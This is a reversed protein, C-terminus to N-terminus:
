ESLKVPISDRVTKVWGHFVEKAFDAAENRPLHENVRQKEPLWSESSLEGDGDSPSVSRAFASLEVSVKQTVADYDADATACVEVQGKANGYTALIESISIIHEM